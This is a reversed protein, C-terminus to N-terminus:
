KIIIWIGVDVKLHFLNNVLLNIESFHDVYTLLALVALDMQRAHVWGVWAYNIAQILSLPM